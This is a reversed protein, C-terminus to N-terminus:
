PGTGLGNAYTGPKPLASTPTPIRSASRLDHAIYAAATLLLGLLLVDMVKLCGVVPLQHWPRRRRPKGNRGLRVTRIHVTTGNSLFAPLQPGAGSTDGTTHATHHPHQTM